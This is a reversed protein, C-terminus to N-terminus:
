LTRDALCDLPVYGNETNDHQVAHRAAAFRSRELYVKSLKEFALAGDECRGATCGHDIRVFRRSDNPFDIRLRVLKRKPAPNPQACNAVGRAANGTAAM